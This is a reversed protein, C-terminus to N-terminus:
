RALEKLRQIEARQKNLDVGMATGAQTLREVESILWHRDADVNLDPDTREKIDALRYTM